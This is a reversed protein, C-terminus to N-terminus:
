VPPYQEAEIIFGRMAAPTKREMRQTFFLVCIVPDVPDAPYKFTFLNGLFLCGLGYFRIMGSL